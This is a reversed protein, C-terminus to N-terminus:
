VVGIRWVRWQSGTRLCIINLIIDNTSLHRLDTQYCARYTPLTIDVLPQIKYTPTIDLNVGELRSTMRVSICLVKYCFTIICSMVEWFGGPSLIHKSWHEKYSKTVKFHWNLAMEIHLAVFGKLEDITTPKWKTFCSKPPLERRKKLLTNPM